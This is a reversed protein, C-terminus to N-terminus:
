GLMFYMDKDFAYQLTQNLQTLNNSIASAGLVFFNTFSSVQDILSKAGAVDTGYGMDVGFYVDPTTKTTITASAPFINLLVSAILLLSILVIILQRPKM